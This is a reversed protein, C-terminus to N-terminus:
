WAYLAGTLIKRDKKIASAAMHSLAADSMTRFDKMVVRRSIPSETERQNPRPNM